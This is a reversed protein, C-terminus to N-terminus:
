SDAQCGSINAVPDANSKKEASLFKTDKNIDLKHPMTEVSRHNIGNKVEGIAM